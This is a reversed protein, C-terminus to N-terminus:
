SAAAYRILLDKIVPTGNTLNMGLNRLSSIFKWDPAFLRQLGDTLTQVLVVEEKRAREYQRLWGLSGCNVHDPKVCLLSALVEADRFGLNIGHGSLPHVAHAADGILALRPACVSSARMWRLPFAQAPALLRLAGWRNAGAEAVRVSLEDPTLALLEHTHQPSTSWVISIRNGPLPLYALVGDRRFWQCATGRHPLSCEFNAVLGQQEYDKFKADIGAKQRVWSNVGDAAVVLDAQLSRGDDLVLRASMQDFVLTDPRAPCFLHLNAQRQLGQWLECQLASSEVIWALEGMGTDYANFEMRGNGDGSIEMSETRCLRNADLREWVGLRSLFAQNTPSIAYIRADWGAQRIPPQSELLAVELSSRALASALSLGALGGGVIVVDYKM